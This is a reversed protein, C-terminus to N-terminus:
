FVDKSEVHQEVENRMRYVPRLKKQSLLPLQDEHHPSGPQSSNGYSVL